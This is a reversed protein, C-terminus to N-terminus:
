LPPLEDEWPQVKTVDTVRAGTFVQILSRGRSRILAARVTEELDVTADPLHMEFEIEIRVRM